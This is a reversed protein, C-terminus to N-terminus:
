NHKKTHNDTTLLPMNVMRESYVLSSSCGQDPTFKFRAVKASKTPINCPFLPSGKRKQRFPQFALFSTRCTKFGFGLFVGWVGFFPGFKPWNSGWFFRFNWRNRGNEGFFRNKPSFASFAFFRSFVRKGPPVRKRGKELTGGVQPTLFVARNVRSAFFVVRMPM